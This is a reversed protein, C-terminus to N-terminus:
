SGAVRPSGSPRPRPSCTSCRASSSRASRRRRPSARRVRAGPGPRGGTLRALRAGTPADALGREVVLREVDRAPVPGLRVIVCRSRVTPLLRDEDDACLILTAGAPPEELTKLLASQADDNMRHAGEILAVRWGGEVPLLALESSWTASAGSTRAVSRSRSARAAPRSGICTPTTATSSSGAAAAHVARGIRRRDAGVCLLGAALDLGLTTKGVAPPGALLVAHPARGALM